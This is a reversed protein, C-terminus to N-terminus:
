EVHARRRLKKDFIAPAAAVDVVGRPLRMLHVRQCTKPAVVSQDASDAAFIWRELHPMIRLVLLPARRKLHDVAVVRADIAHAGPPIGYFRLAPSSWQRRRAM